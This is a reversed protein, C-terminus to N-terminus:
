KGNLSLKNIKTMKWMGKMSEGFWMTVFAKSSVAVKHGPENFHACVRVTLEYSTLISSSDKRSSM